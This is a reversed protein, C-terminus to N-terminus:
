YFYGVFDMVAGGVYVVRVRPRGGAVLHAELDRAAAFTFEAIRACDYIEYVNVRFGEDGVVFGEKGWDALKESLSAERDAGFLAKGAYSM